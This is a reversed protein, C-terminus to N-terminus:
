ALKVGLIQEYRRQEAEMHDAIAAEYEDLTFIGREILLHAVAANNVMASNIGVRLHKPSGDQSGLTQEALVGSQMAHAAAAYRDIDQQSM